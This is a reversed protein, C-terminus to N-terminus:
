IDEDEEEQERAATSNNELTRTAISETKLLISDTGSQFIVRGFPTLYPLECTAEMKTYLVKFYMPVEWHKRQNPKWVYENYFLERVETEVSLTISGADYGDYNDRVYRNLFAQAEGRETKPNARVAVIAMNDFNVRNFIVWGIEVIANLCLILVPLILAAEVLSQGSEKNKRKVAM